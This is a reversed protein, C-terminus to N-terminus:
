LNTINFIKLMKEVDYSSLKINNEKCKAAIENCKVGFDTSVFNYNAKFVITHTKIETETYVLQELENLSREYASCEIDFSFKDFYETQTNSEFGKVNEEHKWNELSEIPIYLVVKGADFKYKSEYKVVFAVKSFLAVKNKKKVENFPLLIQPYENNSGFWRVSEIYAGEKFITKGTECSYFIIHNVEKGNIFYPNYFKSSQALLTKNTTNM